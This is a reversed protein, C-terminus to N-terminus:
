RREPYRPGDAGHSSLRAGISRKKATSRRDAQTCLPSDVGSPRVQMTRHVALIGLSGADLREAARDAGAPRRTTRDRALSPRHSIPDRGATTTSGDAAAARSDRRVMWVAVHRRYHSQTQSSRSIFLHSMILLHSTNTRPDIMVIPRIPVPDAAALGS